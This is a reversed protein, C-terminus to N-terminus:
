YQILKWHKLYYMNNPGPSLGVSLVATTGSDKVKEDHTKLKELIDYTATIDIYVYLCGEM